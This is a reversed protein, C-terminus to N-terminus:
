SMGSVPGYIPLSGFPNVPVSTTSLDKDKGNSKCPIPVIKHTSFPPPSAFM